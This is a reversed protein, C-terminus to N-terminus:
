IDISDTEYFDLSQTLTEQIESEKIKVTMTNLITYVAFRKGQDFLSQESNGANKSNPIFPKFWGIESLFDQLVKSGLESSFLERYAKQREKDDSFPSSALHITFKKLGRDM